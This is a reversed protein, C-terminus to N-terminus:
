RDTCLGDTPTRGRAVDHGAHGTHTMRWVTRYCVGVHRKLELASLTTKAAGLLHMALFWVRLPLKSAQFLTGSVLSTQRGCATCEFYRQAGREFRLCSGHGCKPCAFGNPWRSRELAMRCADETGYREMFETMSLGKQFQVQNMAMVARRTGPSGLM